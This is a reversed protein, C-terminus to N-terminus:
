ARFNKGCDHCYYIRRRGSFLKKCQWVHGKGKAAHIIAVWWDYLLFVIIGIMWKFLIWILYLWGLFLFFFFGHKSEENSLQVHTSGCNPCKHNVSM